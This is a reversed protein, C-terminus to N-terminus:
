ARLLYEAVAMIVIVFIGALGALYYRCILANLSAGVTAGL